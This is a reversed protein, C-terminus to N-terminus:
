MRRVLSDKYQKRLKGLIKDAENKNAFKGVCLIFYNGKQMLFGTTGKKKLLEIEQQGYKEAKYSAVQITYGTEEAPAMSTQATPLNSPSMRDNIELHDVNNEPSSVSVPVIQAVSPQPHVATAGNVRTITQNQVPATVKVIPAPRQASIQPVQKINKGREVGMSFVLVMSMLAVISVVVLNELSLTLNAFLYRPKGAESSSGPTGPFLEFQSQKYTINM